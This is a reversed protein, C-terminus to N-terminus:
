KSLKPTDLHWFTKATRRRHCNACVVDCKLIETFISDWGNQFIMRSINALKVGRVHDFELVIPDIEGCDVCSHIKLYKYVLKANNNARNKNNKVICTRRNDKNNAYWNNGYARQCVRCVGYRVGKAKNRWGFEDDIKQEGCCSCQRM